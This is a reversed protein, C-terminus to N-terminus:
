WHFSDKGHRAATKNERRRIFDEIKTTTTISKEEECVYNLM